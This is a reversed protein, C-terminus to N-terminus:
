LADTRFKLFHQMGPTHGPKRLDGRPVIGLDVTKRFQDTAHATADAAIVPDPLRAIQRRFLATGRSPCAAPCPHAASAAPPWRSRPPSAPNAAPAPGPGPIHIPPCTPKEPRDQRWQLKQRTASRSRAYRAACSHTVGPYSSVFESAS